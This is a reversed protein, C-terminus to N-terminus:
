RYALGETDHRSEAQPGKGKPLSVDGFRSEYKKLNDKMASVLIKFHAPTLVVEAVVDKNQSMGGSETKRTIWTDFFTLRFETPSHNVLADTSFVAHQERKVNAQLKKDKSPNYSM